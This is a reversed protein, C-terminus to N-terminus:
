FNQISQERDESASPKAPWLRGMSGGTMGPEGSGGRAGAKQSKGRRVKRGGNREGNGKRMGSKGGGKDIFTSWKKRRFNM